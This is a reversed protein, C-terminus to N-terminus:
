KGSGGSRSRTKSSGNYRSSSKSVKKGYNKWTSSTKKRSFFSGRKNKQYRSDTGYKTNGKNNSGYFTKGTQGYRRTSNYDRQYTRRTLMWYWFLGSTHPRWHRKKSNNTSTSDSEWKGHKPNGVAWGHGVPQSVKSLKGNHKSIIEMGLDKEYNKFFKENVPKWDLSDVVLTSDNKLKLIHYKHKYVIYNVEKIREKKIDMDNLVISFDQKDLDQIIEATPETAVRFIKPKETCSVIILSICIVLLYTIKKM